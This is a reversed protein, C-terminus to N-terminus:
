SDPLPEANAAEARVRARAASRALQSELAALVAERTIRRVCYMRYPNPPRCLEPSVCPACPMSPRLVTHGEGLPSWQAPSSAGFLAVVPTGVAAAVHMPGSDQGFFLDAEALVAALERLPLTEEIVAPRSRMASRIAALDDAERPGGLLLVRAGETEELYDCAAALEAIPWCKNAASAGPHCVVLPRVRDVGAAALRARASELAAAGPDLRVSRTRMPVGVAALPRFYQDVAHVGVGDGDTWPVTDTYVRQRFGPRGKVFGVRRESRIVGCLLSSRDTQMLDYVLDFRQRRLRRVLAVWAAMFALRGRRRPRPMEVVEDIEPHISLLDRTGEYCAAAIWADPRWARLSRFVPAALITDGLIPRCIVLVRCPRAEPM